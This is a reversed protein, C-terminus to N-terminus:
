PLDRVTRHQVYPLIKVNRFHEVETGTDFITSYLIDKSEGNVRDATLTLDM